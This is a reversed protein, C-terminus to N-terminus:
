QGFRRPCHARETGSSVRRRAATPECPRTYSRTSNSFEGVIALLAQDHHDYSTHGGILLDDGLGGTLSDRGTGGILLDSGLGGTLVDDGSEGLLINKGFGGVLIDNGTGGFLMSQVGLLAVSLWDNGGFGYIKIVEIGNTSFNGLSKLGSRVQFQRHLGPSISLTDSENSGHVVLTTGVRQATAALSPRVTFQSVVAPTRSLIAAPDANVEDETYDDIGYTVVQLNQTEPDIRFRTWGYTHTALYDGQELTANISSGALGVPDYGLPAIASNVLGKVFDDKDNPLDDMDNAVPLSNYFALQSPTILGYDAALGVVTPGFPADFAVAGTSIEWADVSIQTQFPGLQYTLNNTVTGHVDATVFVM